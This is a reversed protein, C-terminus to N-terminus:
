RGGTTNGCSPVTSATASHCMAEKEERRVRQMLNDYNYCRQEFNHFDNTRRRSTQEYSPRSAANQDATSKKRAEDLRKVDEMTRVNEQHWAKLIGETYEYNVNVSKTRTFTRHIAERIIEMSFGYEQLWRHMFEKQYSNVVRGSTSIGYERMIEYYEAPCPAEEGKAASLTRIGRAHWDLAIKEYYRFSEPKKKGQNQAREVCLELLYSLVEYPMKLEGYLYMLAEFDKSNLGNKMYVSFEHVLDQFNEDAEVSKRTADSVAGIAPPNESENAASVAPADDATGQIPSNGTNKKKRSNEEAMVTEEAASPESVSQEQACLMVAGIEGASNRLLSLAGRKEWIELARKVVRETLDLMEALEKVTVENDAEGARRLLVLFVKIDDGRADALFSDVFRSFLLEKGARGESLIKM